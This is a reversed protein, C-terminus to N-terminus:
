NPDCITGHPLCTFISRSNGEKRVLERKGTLKDNKKAEGRRQDGASTLKGNLHLLVEQGTQLLTRLTLSDQGLLEIFAVCACAVQSNHYNRVGIWAATNCVESLRGLSFM